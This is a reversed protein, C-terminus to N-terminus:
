SSASVSSSPPTLPADAPSDNEEAAAAAASVEEHTSLGSRSGPRPSSSASFSLNQSLSSDERAPTPRGNSEPSDALRRPPHSRLHSTSNVRLTAREPSLGDAPGLSAPDHLAEGGDDDDDDDDDDDGNHDINHPWASPYQRRHQRRGTPTAPSSHSPQRSPPGDIQPISSASERHTNHRSAGHHPRSPSPSLSRLGEDSGDSIIGIRESPPTPPSFELIPSRPRGDISDDSRQRRHSAHGAMRFRKDGDNEDDNPHHPIRSSTPRTSPASGIPSEFPLRLASPSRTMMNQVIPIDFYSATSSRSFIVLCLCLVLLMAQIVSMRKQFIVEDALISLRASVAVIERQSQERQTELEIVTSQWIQDYQQRFGKLEVLLTSNLNELFNTTKTMQRKEVKSFADRLIRSQEEIYQLSLTANTELLQLRKHLSKFFSEQTTPTAVSPQTPTPVSRITEQSTPDATKKPAPLSSASATGNHAEGEEFSESDAAVGAATVQTESDATKRQGTVTPPSSESERTPEADHLGCTAITSTPFFFIPNELAVMMANTCTATEVTGDVHSPEEPQAQSPQQSSAPEETEQRATPVSESAENSAEFTPSPIESLVIDAPVVRPEDNIKDTETNDEDVDEDGRAADEQHRFEEMMTTGHVRLLSVPCYFENGYHSLFELRLYRAWILPNEVLFAQVARSNRAEFTGLQKWKDMKMPYRDSVSVRFQHFMSSFFEFNALVVTDVLIDECLEVILFKNSASCETLMYSDKNEVLISQSSKSQPNAKLVTAACDFSAYNFREKCTKGADKSRSGRAPGKNGDGGGAEGDRDKSDKHENKRSKPKEQISEYTKENGTASSVFGGFDLDIETDEGLSDLANNLGGPRRRPEQGSAADQRRALDEASQGARALNQKKWDDFSLFKANDLPSDGDTESEEDATNDKHSADTASPEAETTATRSSSSISTSDDSAGVVNSTTKDKSFISEDSEPHAPQSQGATGTRQVLLTDVETTGSSSPQGVGTTTVTVGNWVSKLCQQPLRHTIYNISKSQCTSVAAHPASLSGSPHVPPASGVAISSDILAFLICLSFRLRPICM